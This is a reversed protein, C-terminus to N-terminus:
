LTGRMEINQIKIGDKMDNGGGRMVLYVVGTTTATYIGLNNAANCGVVSIKGAYATNGCSDWTSIARLKGGANYEAGTVPPNPGCYVEFWTDVGGSTSSVFMDIKYKRGAVVNVAQSMGYQDWGYSKLLTYGSGFTWTANSSWTAVDYLNWKAWDTADALKGGAVINGAVPDPTTVVITQTSTFTQGGKGIATHKVVYTGVDPLFINEEMKGMYAPSGDGLEWKSSIYSTSTATLKYRNVVGSIPTVTFAANLPAAETLGSGVIDAQCGTLSSFTAMAFM